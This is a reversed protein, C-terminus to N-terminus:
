SVSHDNPQLLIFGFEKCHVYTYVMLNAEIHCCACKFCRLVLGWPNFDDQANQQFKVGHTIKYEPRTASQLTCDIVDVGLARRVNVILGPSLRPNWRWQLCWQSGQCCKTYSERAHMKMHFKHPLPTRHHCWRCFIDYGYILM